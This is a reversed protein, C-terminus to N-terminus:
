TKLPLIVLLAPAPLNPIKMCDPEPFDIMFLAFSKVALTSTQPPKKPPEPSKLLAALMNTNPTPSMPVGGAPTPPPSPVSPCPAVSVTGINFKPPDKELNTIVEIGSWVGLRSTAFSLAVPSIPGITFEEWDGKVASTNPPASRTLAYTILHSLPALSLKGSGVRPVLLVPFITEKLHSLVPSYIVTPPNKVQSRQVKVGGPLLAGTVPVGPRGAARREAGPVNEPLITKFPGQLKAMAPVPIKRREPAMPPAPGSVYLAGSAPSIPLLAPM